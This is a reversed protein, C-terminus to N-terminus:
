KMRLLVTIKTGIGVKSVVKLDAGIQKARTRMNKIGLGFQNAKKVDFGAGNDSIELRINVRAKKLKVKIATANTHKIINNLAEQAIFFLALEEEPSIHINHDIDIDRDVGARGEVAELRRTLVVVLGDRELDIPQLKHLFLRMEKLAQRAIFGLDTIIEGPDTLKGAELGLRAAETKMVLGYLRQTVSDHLDRILRQREALTSAIERRRDSRVFSGIQEAVTELRVIEDISYIRSERALLILGVFENETIIPVWLLSGAINHLFFMPARADNQIDKILLSKRSKLIESVLENKQDLFALSEIYEPNIGHHAVLLFRNDDKLEGDILFVATVQSSFSYALQYMTATIFDDINESRSAAGSISHLLSFMEDRAQQRAGEAKRRESHDRLLILSGIILDNRDKIHLIRIHLYLFKDEINFSGKADLEQGTELIRIINPWPSFITKADTGYLQKSSIGLMKRAIPNTDVIHNQKDLLLWGERMQEVVLNRSFPKPDVIKTQYLALGILVGSISFSYMQLTYPEFIYGIDLLMPIIPIFTAILVLKTKRRSAGIGLSMGSVVVIITLFLITAVYFDHFYEWLWLSSSPGPYIQDEISLALIVRLSIIPELIYLLNRPFDLWVPKNVYQLSFLLLSTAAATGGLYLSLLVIKSDSIVQNKHLIVVFFSILLVAILFFYSQSGVHKKKLFLIASLFAALLIVLYLSDMLGPMPMNVM